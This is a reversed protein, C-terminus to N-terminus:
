VEETLLTFDTFDNFALKTSTGEKHWEVKNCITWKLLSSMIKDTVFLFFQENTAVSHSVISAGNHVSMDNVLNFSFDLSFSILHLLLSFVLYATYVSHGLTIM